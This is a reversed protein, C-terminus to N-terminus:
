KHSAVASLATILADIDFPKRLYYSVHEDLLAKLQLKEDEIYASVIVTPLLHGRNKLELYTELGSLVPLRLDLIMVDIVNSEAIALATEGDRALMVKYGCERLSLAVAESFDPDDDVLLVIGSPKIAELTQLLKDMNIPKHLIGLAGEGVAQELLQEVSFGTMMMIRAEPKNRKIAMMSEVGNMGPLRVDMLTIDFDRALFVEVAEEGSHAITVAHGSDELVEALSEAIDRDDDVIFVNLGAM